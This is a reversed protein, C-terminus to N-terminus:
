GGGGPAHDDGPLREEEVDVGDFPDVGDDGGAALGDVDERAALLPDMTLGPVVDVRGDPHLVVGSAAGRVLHAAWTLPPVPDM